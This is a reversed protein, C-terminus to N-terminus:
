KLGIKIAYALLRALLEPDDLNLEFDENYQWCVENDFGVVVFCKHLLEDLLEKEM